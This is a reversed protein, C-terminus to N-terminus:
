AGREVDSSILESTNIFELAASAILDFMSQDEAM